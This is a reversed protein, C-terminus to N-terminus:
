AVRKGKGLYLEKIRADELVEPAPGEFLTRGLDLVIGWDSAMLGMLANQEVLVITAGEDRLIKMIDYM